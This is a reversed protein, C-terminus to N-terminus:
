KKIQIAFQIVHCKGTHFEGEHREVEGVFFHYFRDKGFNNLFDYIDYLMDFSRPGGTSYNLQEKSYVEGIFWGGNKLSGRIGLLTKQRLESPFHGFVCFINQFTSEQWMVDNLDLCQTLIKINEKQARDQAKQLGVSSYDWLEISFPQNERNAKHALFLANRGEGEAIALSHGKFEIKEAIFQIFVNPEYGYVFEYEQYRNNWNESM